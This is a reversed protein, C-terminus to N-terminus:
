KRKPKPTRKSTRAQTEYNPEVLDEIRTDSNNLEGRLYEILRYEKGRASIKENNLRKVKGSAYDLALTPSPCLMDLTFEKKQRGFKDFPMLKYDHKLSPLARQYLSPKKILFGEEYLQTFLKHFEKPEGLYWEGGSVDRTPSLVKVIPLNEFKGRDEEEVYKTYGRRITDFLWKEADRCRQAVEKDERKAEADLQKTKLYKVGNKEVEETNNFTYANMKGCIGIGLIHVGRPFSGNIQHFRQLLNASQGIKVLPYKCHVSSPEQYMYVGSTGYDLDKYLSNVKKKIRELQAKSKFTYEGELIFETNEASSASAESVTRKQRKRPATTTRKQGVLKELLKGPSQFWSFTSDM